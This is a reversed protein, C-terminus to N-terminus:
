IALLADARLRDSKRREETVLDLPQWQADPVSKQIEEWDPVFWQDGSKAGWLTFTKGTADSVVRGPIAQYEPHKQVYALVALAPNETNMTNNM